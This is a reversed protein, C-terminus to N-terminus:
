AAVAATCRAAAPQGDSLADEIRRALADITSALQSSHGGNCVEQVVVVCGDAPEDVTGPLGLGAGTASHSALRGGCCSTSEM